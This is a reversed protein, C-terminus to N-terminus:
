QRCEIIGKRESIYSLPAPIIGKGWIEPRRGEVPREFRYWACNDKGAHKSGPIWKLRGVTVIETCYPHFPAAQKTWIWDADFLLWTPAISVFHLIMAHLLPRSWPPNTIIFDLPRLPRTIPRWTLADQCVIDGRAPMADGLFYASGGVSRLADALFGNSACPEAFRFRPPLFPLLPEVGAIPTRYLDMARRKFSSRKGMAVRGRPM